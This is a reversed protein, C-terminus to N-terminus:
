LTHGYKKFLLTMEEHSLNKGKKKTEDYIADALAEDEINHRHLVYKVNSKGSLPGIEILQELGLEGAPISSYINDALWQDNMKQAKIIAAAHVGTSTAFAKGGVVPWNGPIPVDCSDSILHCYDRLRIPDFDRIGMLKLNILLQEMSVNGTREGIGLGTAHVRKVGAELAAMANCLGLGRDNHGHWDLPFEKDHSDLFGKVFKVLEKTGEPTAYGVTDCICVRDAGHEVATEYIVKIDEPKSRTTDETIFTVPINNKVGFSVANKVLELIHNIDWHEVVQRIPSSGVFVNADISIGFKQSLEAIPAIDNEVTRAACAIRLKLDNEQIYRIMGELDKIMAPGAIPFGICAADIGLDHMCQIMELKQPLSPQQIGSAQIGDRLTEDNIEFHRPFADNGKKNWPYLLTEKDYNM